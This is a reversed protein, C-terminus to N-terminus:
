HKIYKLSSKCYNLRTDPLTAEHCALHSMHLPSSAVLSLREHHCQADVLSLSSNSLPTFSARLRGSLITPAHQVRDLWSPVLYRQWDHHSGHKVSPALIAENSPHSDYVQESILGRPYYREDQVTEMWALCENPFSVSANTLLSEMQARLCTEVPDPELPHHEFLMSKNLELLLTLGGGLTGNTYYHSGHAMVDTTTFYSSSALLEFTAVPFTLAVVMWHSSRYCAPQFCHAEDHISIKSAMDYLIDLGAAANYKPPFSCAALYQSKFSELQFAHQSDLEFRSRYRHDLEGLFAEAVSRYRRFAIRWTQSPPSVLQTVNYPLSANFIRVLSATQSVIHVGHRLALYDVPLPAVHMSQRGVDSAVHGPSANMFPDFVSHSLSPLSLALSPELGKRDSANSAAEHSFTTKNSSHGSSSVAMVIACVTLLVLFAVAISVRVLLRKRARKRFLRKHAMLVTSQHSPSDYPPPCVPPVLDPLDIDTLATKFSKTPSTNM